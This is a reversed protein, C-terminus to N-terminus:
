GGLAKIEHRLAAILKDDSLLGSALGKKLQQRVMKLKQRRQSASATFTTSSDAAASPRSGSPSSSMASPGSTRLESLDGVVVGDELMMCDGEDLSPPRAPSAMLISEVTLKKQDGGSAGDPPEGPNEADAGAAAAKAVRRRQRRKASKSSGPHREGPALPGGSAAAAVPAPTGVLAVAARLLGEAARTLRVAELPLGSGHLLGSAAHAAVLTGRLVEAANKMAHKTAM